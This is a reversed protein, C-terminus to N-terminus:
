KILMERLVWLVLLDEVSVADFDAITAGFAHFVIIIITLQTVACRTVDCNQVDQHFCGIEHKFFELYQLIDM